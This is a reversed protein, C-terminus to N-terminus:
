MENEDLLLSCAKVVDSYKAFATLFHRSCSVSGSYLSHFPIQWFGIFFRLPMNQSLKGMVRSSM